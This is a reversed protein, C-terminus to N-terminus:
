LDKEIQTTSLQMSLKNKITNIKTATEIAEKSEGKGYAKNMNFKFAFSMCYDIIEWDSLSIEIKMKKVM